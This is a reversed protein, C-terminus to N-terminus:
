LVSFNRIQVENFHMLIKQYFFSALDFNTRAKKTININTPM